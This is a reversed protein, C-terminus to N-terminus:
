SITKRKERKTRVSKRIGSIYPYMIEARGEQDMFFTSNTSSTSHWQKTDVGFFPTLMVVPSHCLIWCQFLKKRVRM